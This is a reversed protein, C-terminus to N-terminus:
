TDIHRAVSKRKEAVTAKTERLSCVPHLALKVLYLRRDIRGDMKSRFKLEIYSVLQGCSWMSLCVVLSM